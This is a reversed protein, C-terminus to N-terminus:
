YTKIWNTLNTYVSSTIRTGSNLGTFDQVGYTHIGYITRNGTLTSYYYVASGSMGGFTDCNYYIRNAYLLSWTSVGCDAHWMTGKKKDGPYGNINVSLLPLFFSYNYDMWGTKNGINKKLVIMAYDFDQLHSQTYGKVSIVTKWDINGYPEPKAAASNRGPAFKHSPYWTNSSIDYVCHGATLVHRPGILTGTCYNEIQGVSNYPFINTNKIQIREDKGIVTGPKVIIRQSGLNEYRGSRDVKNITREQLSKLFIKIDDSTPAYESTGGGNEVTVTTLLEALKSNSMTMFQSSAISKMDLKNPPVFISKSNDLAYSLNGYFLIYIIIVRYAAAQVSFLFTKLVM